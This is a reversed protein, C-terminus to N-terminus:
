IQGELFPPPRDLVVGYDTFGLGDYVGEYKWGKPLNERQFIVGNCAMKRLALSCTYSKANLVWSLALHTIGKDKHRSFRKNLEKHFYYGINGRIRKIFVQEGQGWSDWLKVIGWHPSIWIRDLILIHLHPLNHTPSFEPVCVYNIKKRTPVFKKKKKDWYGRRKWNNKDKDWRYKEFWDILRHFNVRLAKYASLLGNFRKPDTTLTLHIGKSSLSCLQEIEERLNVLYSPDARVEYPLVLWKEGNDKSLVIVKGAIDKLYELFLDKIRDVWFSNKWWDGDVGVLKTILRTECKTVQRIEGRVYELTDWEKVEKGVVVRRVGGQLELLVNRAERWLSHRGRKSDKHQTSTQTPPSYRSCFESL